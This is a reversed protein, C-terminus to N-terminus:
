YQQLIPLYFQITSVCQDLEEKEYQSPITCQIHYRKISVNYYPAIESYNVSLFPSLCFIASKFFTLFKFSSSLLTFVYSGIGTLGDFLVGIYKAVHVCLPIIVIDASAFGVSSAHM